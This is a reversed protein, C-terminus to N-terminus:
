ACFSTAAKKSKNTARPTGKRSVPLNIEAVADGTVVGETVAEVTTAAARDATLASNAESNTTKKRAVHLVPLAGFAASRLKDAVAVTVM